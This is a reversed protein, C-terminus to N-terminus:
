RVPPERANSRHPRGSRELEAQRARITSVPEFVPGSLASRIVPPADLPEDDCFSKKADGFWEVSCAQEDEAFGRAEVAAPLCLWLLLAFRGLVSFRPV